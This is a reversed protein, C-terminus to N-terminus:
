KKRVLRHRLNVSGIALRGIKGTGMETFWLAGDPGTVIAQPKAGATPLAFETINSTMTIGTSFEGIANNGPDTFWLNGDPGTTIYNPMSGAPAAYEVFTGGNQDMRGVSLTGPDTYFLRTGAYTIGFPAASPSASNQFDSFVGAATIRGIYGQALSETFYLAGTSPDITFLNTASGTTPIIESEVGDPTMRVVRNAISDGFWLNGDVGAIIGSPNLTSANTITMQASSNPTANTPIRGVKGAFEETFWLAGDPGNTIATPNASAVATPLPYETISTSTNPTANTPIRGITGTGGVMTFWLAGDSGPAIGVPQPSTVGVPNPVPFETISVPGPLTGGVAGAATVAAVNLTTSGDSFGVSCGSDGVVIGGSLSVTASGGGGSPTGNVAAIGTCGPGATATYATANPANLESLTVTVTVGNALGLTNSAPQYTSASAFLPSIAVHASAGGQGSVSPAVFSVTMGYGPVGKGDYKLAVADTSHTSIVSAAPAGGNLSLTAHGTGGTEVVSITIPNAYPSTSPASIKNVDFDYADIVFAVTHAVGDAPLSSFPANGGVHDIVGGLFVELANARGVLIAQDSLRGVGLLNAAVPISGGPPPAQDYTSVSFDDGVTTTPPLVLTADCTRPFGTHGGCAPSGSSVNVATQLFPSGSGHVFVQVLVGNTSPSVFKSGHGNRRRARNPGSIIMHMGVRVRAPASAGGTAPQPLAGGSTSNGACAALAAAFLLTATKSARRANLMMDM